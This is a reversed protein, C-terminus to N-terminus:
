EVPGPSTVEQPAKALAQKLNKQAIADLPDSEVALRYQEIAKVLNNTKDYSYGLNGHIYALQEKNEKSALSISKELMNIAEAYKGQRNFLEGLTAYAWVFDPKDKIALIFYTVARSLNGSDMEQSGKDYNQKARVTAQRLQKDEIFALLREADAYGHSKAKAFWSKSVELDVAVGYGNLYMLGLNFEAPGYEKEAASRYWTLAQQYDPTEGMTEYLRGLKLEADPDNMKAALSYYEVAMDYDQAVGNGGAYMAGLDRYGQSNGLQGARQFYHLAKQKDVDGGRGTMAFVGLSHIAKSHDQLAATAYWIKAQQDDRPVGRGVSYRWGLNFQAEAYGQAAAKRYWRIAEGDDQPVGEGRAYLVGLENQAPAYGQEAAKGYWEAALAKDIDVGHGFNYCDGIASQSPAMNHAAALRFLRFAQQYDKTVGHGLYYLLGLAHAAYYAGRDIAAHYHAIAKDIDREVGIGRVYFTALVFYAAANENKSEQEAWQLLRNLDSPDPWAATFSGGAESRAAGIADLELHDFLTENNQFHSENIKGYSRTTLCSISLLFAIVLVSKSTM